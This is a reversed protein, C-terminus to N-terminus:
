INIRGSKSQKAKNGLSERIRAIDRILTRQFLLIDASHIVLNAGCKRIYDIEEQSNEDPYAAHIGAGIGARRAKGIIETVTKRFLPNKYDEPIGLSCSLDHPGILVGDLGQVGLLADLDRVAPASEVNIILAYDRNYTEVYEQLAPEMPERGSTIDQQRKGKLPRLKIAGALKRVEDVSEVYPAVVGTAGGDLVQCAKYPDPSPIRVLPPLGMGRYSRCMWSLDYRDMPIHETDLFVFDLGCSSIAAPWRPSPSTILTGIVTRGEKLANRFEFGTM